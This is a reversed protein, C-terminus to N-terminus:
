QDTEYMLKTKLLNLHDESGDKEITDIIQDYHELWRRIIQRKEDPPIDVEKLENRWKGLIEVLRGYSDGYRAALEDRFFSAVLPASGTTAVTM